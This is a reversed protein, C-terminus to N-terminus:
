YGLLNAYLLENWADPVGPLCWHTCDVDKSGYISPHGDKRLQSLATVNVMHVSKSLRGLAKELVAEAPHPGGPYKNGPVPRTQRRCNKANPDAWDRSSTSIKFFFSFILYQSYSPM